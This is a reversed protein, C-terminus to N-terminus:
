PPFAGNCYWSRFVELDDAEWRFGDEPMEGSALEGYVVDPREMIEDYIVSPQDLALGGQRTDAAHCGTASCGKLPDLMLATVRGFDAQAPPLIDGCSIRESRSLQCALVLPLGGLTLAPVFRLKV